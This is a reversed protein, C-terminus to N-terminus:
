NREIYDIVSNDIGMIAKVAENRVRYMRSVIASRKLTDMEVVQVKRKATEAMKWTEWGYTPNTKM